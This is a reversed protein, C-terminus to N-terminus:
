KDEWEDIGEFVVSLQVLLAKQLNDVAALMSPGFERCETAM